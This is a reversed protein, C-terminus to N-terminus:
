SPSRILLRYGALLCVKRRWGSEHWADVFVEIEDSLVDGNLALKMFPADSM